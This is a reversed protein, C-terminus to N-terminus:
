VFLATDKDKKDDVQLAIILEIKTLINEDHSDLQLEYIFLWIVLKLYFSTFHTIEQLTVVKSM